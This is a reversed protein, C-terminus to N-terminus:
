AMNRIFFDRLVPISKACGCFSGSELTEALVGQEWGVNCRWEPCHKIAWKMADVNLPLGLLDLVGGAECVLCAADGRTMVKAVNPVDQLGLNVAVKEIARYLYLRQKQATDVHSPYIKARKEVLSESMDFHGVDNAEDAMCKTLDMAADVTRQIHGKKYISLCKFLPKSSVRLAEFEAPTVIRIQERLWVPSASCERASGVLAQERRYQLDQLGINKKVRLLNYEDVAAALIALWHQHRSCSHSKVLEAIMFDIACPVKLCALLECEGRCLGIKYARRVARVIACKKVPVNAIVGSMLALAVNVINPTLETLNM